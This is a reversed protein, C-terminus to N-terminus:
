AVPSHVKKYLVAALTKVVEVKVGGITEEKTEMAIDAAWVDCKSCLPIKERKGKEHLNRIKNIARSNFISLLDKNTVKGLPVDANIDECCLGVTGDWSIVMQSYLLPCPRDKPKLKRLDPLRKSGIPRFAAISVTEAHPIWKEIFELVEEESVEPYKVMNFNLVPENSGRMAKIELFKEINTEIRKLDAGLRYRDNTEPRAGDISLWIWDVPLSLVFEHWKEDFLMGNTMFGVSANPVERATKLIEKFHPHLLPEGAGHLCLNVRGAEQSWQSIDKFIAKWIDEAMIGIPRKRQADPGHFHCYLCRLNCRNTTEIIIEKPYIRDRKKIPWWTFRM